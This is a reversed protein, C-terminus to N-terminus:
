ELEELEKKIKEQQKELRKKKAILSREKKEEDKQAKIVAKTARIADRNENYWDQYEKLDKKYQEVRQDYEEESEMVTYSFEPDIHAVEDYKTYSIYSDPFVESIDIGRDEFHKVIEALSPRPATEYDYETERDDNTYPLEIDPPFVAIKFSEIMRRGFPKEPKKKLDIM